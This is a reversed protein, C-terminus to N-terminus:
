LTVNRRAFQPEYLSTIPYFYENWCKYHLIWTHSVNKLVLNFHEIVQYNFKNIMHQATKLYSRKNLRKGWLCNWRMVWHRNVTDLSWRLHQRKSILPQPCSKLRCECPPGLNIDGFQIFTQISVTYETYLYALVRLHLVRHRPFHNFFFVRM